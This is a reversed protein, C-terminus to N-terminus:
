PKKIVVTRGPLSFYSRGNESLFFNTNQGSAPYNQLKIISGYVTAQKTAAGNVSYRLVGSANVTFVLSVFGAGAGQDITWGPQLLVSQYRDQIVKLPSFTTIALIISDARAEETLRKNTNSVIYSAQALADMRQLIKDAQDGALAAAPGVLTATETYSLGDEATTRTVELYNTADSSLVFSKTITQAPASLSFLIFLLTINKM